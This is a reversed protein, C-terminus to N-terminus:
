VNFLLEKNCFVVLFVFFFYSPSVSFVALSEVIRFAFRKKEKKKKRKEKQSDVLHL